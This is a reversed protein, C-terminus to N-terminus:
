AIQLLLLIPHLYITAQNLAISGGGPFGKNIYAHRVQNEILGSGAPSSHDSGPLRELPQQLTVQLNHNNGTLAMQHHGKAGRVCACLLSHHYQTPNLM